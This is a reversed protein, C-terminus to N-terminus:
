HELQEIRRELAIIRTVLVHIVASQNIIRARAADILDTVEELLTATQVVTPAAKAKAATAKPVVTTSAKAWAVKPAATPTPVATAAAKAATATPVM